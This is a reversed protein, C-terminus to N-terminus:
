ARPGTGEHEDQSGAQPTAPRQEFDLAASNICYRQGTPRPGDPFLHGLHATCTACRVEVRRMGFSRDEHTVVRDNGLVDYFSPWGSGSEFKTTSDFLPASCVVCRYTGDAHNNWYVGTFARETGAEQTVAYQLPSLRSLRAELEEATMTRREDGM